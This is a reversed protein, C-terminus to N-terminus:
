RTQAWPALNTGDNSLRRVCERQDDIVEPTLGACTGGDRYHSRLTQACGYAGSPNEAWPDGGSERMIIYDPIAFGTCLGVGGYSQPRSSGSSPHTSAHVAALYDHLAGLYTNVQINEYLTLAAAAKTLFAAGPDAAISPPLPEARAPGALLTLSLVATALAASLRRM